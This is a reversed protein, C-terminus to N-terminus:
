KKGVVIRIQRSFTIVSWFYSVIRYLPRPIFRYYFRSLPLWATNLIRIERITYGALSFLNGLLRPTWTYLHLNIDKPDYKQEVRWEDIPVVVIFIGNKRLRTKLKRLIVVPDAVHELTHHSIIVDFTTTVPIKEITPFVELGKKKAELRAEKNIDVGVKRKCALKQLMYGGGCGFDLVEDEPRVYEEYMWRDQEAGYKGAKRQWDFYKKDYHLKM